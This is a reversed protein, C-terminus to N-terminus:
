LVQGLKFMLLSFEHIWVLARWRPLSRMYLDQAAFCDGISPAVSEAYDLSYVANIPRSLGNVHSLRGCCGISDRCHLGAFYGLISLTDIISAQCVRDFYILFCFVTIPIM